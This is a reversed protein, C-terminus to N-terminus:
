SVVIFFFSLAFEAGAAQSLMLAGFIIVFSDCGHDFLQGLASSSKTRRAQKGDMADLTQYVFIAFSAFLFVWSPIEKKFTFDYCLMLLYAVVIFLFGVFTILNPAVWLPLMETARLWYPNLKNDLWTYEGSVYKYAKLKQLGEESIFYLGM